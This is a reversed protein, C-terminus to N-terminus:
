QKETEKSIWTLYGAFGKEISWSIIEPVEYPHRSKIYKEVNLYKKATTKIFVGYEPEQEIKGKWAYISFLKFINGCAGLKKEVLEKVIERAVKVNPFTTYVIIYKKRSRM